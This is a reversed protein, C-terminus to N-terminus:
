HAGHLQKYVTNVSNVCDMLNIKGKHEPEDVIQQDWAMYLTSSDPYGNPIYKVCMDKFTRCDKLYLFTMIMNIEFINQAMAAVYIMIEPSFVFGNYHEPTFRREIYAYADFAERLDQKLEEARGRSAAVKYSAILAQYDNPLRRTGMTYVVEAYNMWMKIRTEVYQRQLRDIEAPEKIM